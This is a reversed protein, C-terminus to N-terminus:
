EDGESSVTKYGRYRIRELLSPKKDKNKEKLKYSDDLQKIATLINLAEEKSYKNTSSVENVTSKTPTSANFIDTSNVDAPYQKSEIPRAVYPFLNDIPSRFINRQRTVIFFVLLIIGIVVVATLIGGFPNKLFSIIGGLIDGCLGSTIGLMTGVAEGVSGLGKLFGQLGPMYGSPRKSALKTEIDHLASRYTNYERLMTELDLVNVKSLEDKSYLELMNFDANELPEINLNIFADIKEINILSTSNTYTYDKYIHAIKGSLFIKTSPEECQEIRHKGLLIINDMGLQGSYTETSNLFSFILPPRTYCQGSIHNGNADLVKMNKHLRVSTQNVEVCKSISLVDGILKASVAKGLITSMISSPNIKSLEHLVTITRKQDLCWSEALNGLADNIYERLVDYMYQLQVYLLDKKSDLELERRKRHTNNTAQELSFLSKPILPQWVLLLDGNTRFIEFSGNMYHTDNYEEEFITKIKEKYDNEICKERNSELTINQKMSVFSATIDRAIFHYTNDNESRIAHPISSWFKLQCFATDENVIEWSFTIDGKTLFAAKKLEKRSGFIGENLNELMSYNNFIHFKSEEEHFIGNTGDFFPSSEITEGTALAFYHYPYKSKAYSETVICNISTSTSYFWVPAPKYWVNKTTIYRKSLATKMGSEFFPMTTDVDYGDKHYIKHEKNDKMVAATTYCVGRNNVLHIEDLPMPLHLVNRDLFYTEYADSYTKQYTVEKKYTRVPFTYTVINRKYILLIGETKVAKTKYSECIIDKDFRMVDTAQDMSCVRFPFNEDFAEIFDNLIMDIKAMLLVLHFLKMDM